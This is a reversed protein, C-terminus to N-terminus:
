KKMFSIAVTVSATTGSYLRWVTRVQTFVYLRLWYRASQLHNHYHTLLGMMHCPNKQPFFIGHRSGERRRTFHFLQVIHFFKMLWFKYWCFLLKISLLSIHLVNRVPNALFHSFFNWSCKLLKVDLSHFATLLWWSLSLLWLKIVLLLRYIERASTVPNQSPSLLM